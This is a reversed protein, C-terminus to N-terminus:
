ALCVRGDVKGVLLAVGWVQAQGDVFRGATSGLPSCGMMGSNFM